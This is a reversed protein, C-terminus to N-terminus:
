PITKDITCEIGYKGNDKHIEICSKNRLDNSQLKYVESLNPNNDGWAKIVKYLPLREYILAM